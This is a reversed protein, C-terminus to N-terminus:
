NLWLQADDFQYEVNPTLLYYEARFITRADSIPLVRNFRTWELGINEAGCKALEWGTTPSYARLCIDAVLPTGTPSRAWISTTYSQGSQAPVSVDQSVSALGGGSVATLVNNGAKALNGLTTVQMTAGPAANGWPASTGAEFSPNVLATTLSEGDFLIDHGATALVLQTRLQTAHLTAAFATSVYTWDSGVLFGTSAAEQASGLGWQQLVGSIPTGDASKLWM